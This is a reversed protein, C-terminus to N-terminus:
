TATAATENTLLDRVCAVARPIAAAVPASLTTGPGHPRAISIAVIRIGPGDGDPALVRALAIADAVGIGHSSYPARPLCALAEPALCAVTGPEGGDAIADVLVARATGALLDVLRAPDAIEHLGIGAPLRGAAGLARVVAIGAFDDGAGPQGIGIVRVAMGSM